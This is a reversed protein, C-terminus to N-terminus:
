HSQLSISLPDLVPNDECPCTNYFGGDDDQYSEEELTALEDRKEFLSRFYMKFTTQASEDGGGDDEGDNDSDGDAKPLPLYVIWKARFKTPSLELCDM